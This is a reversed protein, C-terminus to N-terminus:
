GLHLRTADFVESIMEELCYPISDDSASDIIVKGISDALQPYYSIWGQHPIERAIYPEDFVDNFSRVRQDFDKKTAQNYLDLMAQLLNRVGIIDILTNCIFSSSSSNSVFGLRTKMYNDMVGLKKM